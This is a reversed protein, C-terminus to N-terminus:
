GQAITVPIFLDIYNCPLFYSIQNKDPSEHFSPDNMQRSSHWVIWTEVQTLYTSKHDDFINSSLPM